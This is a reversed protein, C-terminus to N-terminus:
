VSVSTIQGSVDEHQSFRDNYLTFNPGFHKRLLHLCHAHTNLIQGSVNTIQGSSCVCSFKKKISNRLEQFMRINHFDRMTYQLILGLINGSYFIFLTLTHTCSKDQFM